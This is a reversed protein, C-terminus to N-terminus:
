DGETITYNFNKQEVEHKDQWGFNNKLSFIAGTPQKASYLAEETAEEVRLYARKISKSLLKDDSDRYSALTSKDLGLHLALGSIKPLKTSEKCKEFYEEIRSDLETGKFKRPRGTKM